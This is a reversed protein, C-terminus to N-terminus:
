LAWFLASQMSCIVVAVSGMPVIYRDPPLGPRAIPAAAAARIVRRVFAPFSQPPFPSRNRFKGAPGVDYSRYLLRLLHANVILSRKSPRLNALRSYASRLIPAKSPM